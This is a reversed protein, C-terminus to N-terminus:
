RIFCRNTEKELFLQACHFTGSNDSSSSSGGVVVDEQHTEAGSKRSLEDTHTGWWELPVVSLHVAVYSLVIDEATNMRSEFFISMNQPMENPIKKEKHTIWKARIEYVKLSYLQFVSTYYYVSPCCIPCLAHAKTVLNVVIKHKNLSFLLRFLLLSLYVVSEHFWYMFSVDDIYKDKNIIYLKIAKIYWETLKKFKVSRKRRKTCPCTGKKNCRLIRKTKRKEKQNKKHHQHWCQIGSFSCKVGNHFIGLM